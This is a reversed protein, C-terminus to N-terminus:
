YIWLESENPSTDIVAAYTCENRRCSRRTTPGGLSGSLSPWNSSRKREPRSSAANAASTCRWPGITSPVHRRMRPWSCSASSTGLGGKQHQRTSGSGQAVLRGQGAEQVASSIMQSRFGFAGGATAAFVFATEPCQRLGARWGMGGLLQQPAFHPNHQVFLDSAQRVSASTHKDQAAQLFQTLRLRSSAQSQFLARYRVTKYGPSPSPSMADIPQIDRELIGALFRRQPQDLIVYRNLAADEAQFAFRQGADFHANV